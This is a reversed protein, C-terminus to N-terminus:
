NLTATEPDSARTSTIKSKVDSYLKAATTPRKLGSSMGTTSKIKDKSTTPTKLNNEGIRSGGRATMPTTNVNRKPTQLAAGNKEVGNKAAMSTSPRSIGFVKKPAPTKPALVQSKVAVELDKKLKDMEEQMATM